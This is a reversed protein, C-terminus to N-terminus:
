GDNKDAKTKGIKKTSSRFIFNIGSMAKADKIYSLVSVTNPTEIAVQNLLYAPVGPSAHHQEHRNFHLLLYREVFKNFGLSRTFSVQESYRLPKVPGGQSTYMVIHSHQSLIILDSLILSLLYAPGLQLILTFGFFWFVWSYMLTLIIMNLLASRWRKVSTRKKLKMPNWYNGLRYAITFIPIWLKWSMNIITEPVISFDKDDTAETTPDLDRYGTWRHHLQHITQWSLFPIFSFFSFVHGACINLWRQSFFSLHGMEHTLIFCQLFFIGLLVQSMIYLTSGFVAQSSIGGSILLLLPLLMHRLAQWGDPRLENDKKEINM